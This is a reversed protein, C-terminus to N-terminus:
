PIRSLRTAERRDIKRQKYRELADDFYEDSEGDEVRVRYSELLLNLLDSPRSLSLEAAVQRLTINNSHLLHANFRIIEEEAPQTVPKKKSAM